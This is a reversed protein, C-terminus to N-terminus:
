KVDEYMQTSNLTEIFKSLFEQENEKKLYFRYIGRRESKNQILFETSSPLITQLKLKARNGLVVKLFGDITNCTTVIIKQKKYHHSDLILRIFSELLNSPIIEESNILIYKETDIIAPSKRNNYFWDLVRFLEKRCNSLIAMARTKTRNPNLCFSLALSNEYMIICSKIVNIFEQIDKVESNYEEFLYTDGILTEENTGFRKLLLSSGIKEIDNEELDFFGKIKGNEKMNIGLSRIFDGAKEQSGSIKPLYPDVCDSLSKFMPLTHDCNLLLNKKKNLLGLNIGEVLIKKNILSLNNQDSLIGVFALACLDQNKIDLEKVFMYVMSSISVQERPKEKFFLFPNILNLSDESIEGRSFIISNEIKNAFKTGTDIVFTFDAKTIKIEKILQEDVGVVFKVSFCIEMRELAKCLVGCSVIADVTKKSIIQVFTPSADKFKNSLNQIREELYNIDGM